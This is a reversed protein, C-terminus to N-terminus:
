CRCTALAAALDDLAEPADPIEVPRLHNSVFAYVLVRGRADTVLGALASTGRLTGTKGRVWGRGPSGDFRDELSGDYAAVPLGSVAPRLEPHDASSAIQLVSVLSEAQLRDQRSLGSGDLIRAGRLDVGLGSLTQSVAAAGGDFSGHGNVALGTQHGLVEAGENDSVLLVQEVIQALPRSTVRAVERAGAPAQRERVSGTVRM